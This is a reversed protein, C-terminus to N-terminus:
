AVKRTVKKANRRLDAAVRKQYEDACQPLGALNMTGDIVEQATYTTLTLCNAVSGDTYQSINYEEYIMHDDDRGGHISAEAYTM